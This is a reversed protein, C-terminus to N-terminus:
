EYNGNYEPSTMMEYEGVAADRLRFPRHPHDRDNVDFVMVKGTVGNIVLEAKPMVYTSVMAEAAIFQVKNEPDRVGILAGKPEDIFFRTGGIVAVPRHYKQDM